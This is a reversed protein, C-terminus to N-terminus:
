LDADTIVYPKLKLKHLTKNANQLNEPNKYPSNKDGDNRHARLMPLLYSYLTGSHIGTIASLIEATHTKVDPKIQLSQIYEIVGLKELIIVREKEENDSFDYKPTEKPESITPEPATPKHAVVDNKAIEIKLNIFDLIQMIVKTEGFIEQQLDLNEKYATVYETVDSHHAGINNFEEVLDWYYNMLDNDKEGYRNKYETGDELRHELYELEAFSLSNVIKGRMEILRKPAQYENELRKEENLYLNKCNDLYKLFSIPPNIEAFDIIYNSEFEKFSYYFPIEM